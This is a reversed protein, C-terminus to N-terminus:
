EYKPDVEILSNVKILEYVFKLNKQLDERTDKSASPELLKVENCQTRTDSMTVWIIIM